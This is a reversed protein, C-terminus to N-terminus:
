VGCSWMGFKAAAGVMRLAAWPAQDDGVVQFGPLNGVAVSMTLMLWVTVYSLEVPMAITIPM